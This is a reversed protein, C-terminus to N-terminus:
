GARKKTLAASLKTKIENIKKQDNGKRAEILQANLSELTDAQGSGSSSGSGAGSGDGSGTGAGQKHSSRVLHPREQYFKKVGDVLSMSIDIGNADKSSISMNGGQDIKIQGKLLAISEELFGGNKSVENTLAHEIRLNQIEQDKASLKGSFEGIKAELQKKAEEYNKQAELEKQKGAEQSKEFEAKFKRLDDYDAFKERERALRTQVIKDVEPQLEKPIEVAGTGAEGKNGFSYLPSNAWGFKFTRMLWIGVDGSRRLFYHGLAGIAFIILYAISEKM